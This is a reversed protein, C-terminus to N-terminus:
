VHPEEKRGTNTRHALFRNVRRAAYIMVLMVAGGSILGLGTSMLGNFAELYIVWVRLALIFIALSLLRMAGTESAYFAICLWYAIFSLMALLSAEPTMFIVPLAIMAVSAMVYLASLDYLRPEAAHVRYVVRHFIVCLAAVIFVACLIFHAEVRGLGTEELNWSVIPSRDGYWAVSALSATLTLLIFGVRQSVAAWVPRLQRILRVHGDAILCLPLFVGLMLVFFTAWYQPLTQLYDVMILPVSVVLAIIAPLITLRTRGLLFFAPLIALQWLLIAGSMAGGLQYVQGILAILTLTLGGLVLLCGEGLMTRGHRESWWITLALAINVALHAAIKVGGPILLWNAAIMSLVGVIMAFLAVGILGRGLRGQHHQREHATIAAEQAATLLGAERWIQLKRHTGFM